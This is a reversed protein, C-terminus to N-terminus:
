RLCEEESDHVEMRPDAWHEPSGCNVEHCNSGPKDFRVRSSRHWSSWVSLLVTRLRDAVSECWSQVAVGCMGALECDYGVDVTFEDM